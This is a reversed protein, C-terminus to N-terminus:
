HKSTDEHPYADAHRTTRETFRGSAIVHTQSRFGRWCWVTKKKRGGWGQKRPGTNPQKHSEGRPSSSAAPSQRRSCFGSITRSHPLRPASESRQKRGRKRGGGPGLGLATIAPPSACMPPLMHRPFPPPPPVLFFNSPLFFSSSPVRGNNLQVSDLGMGVGCLAGSIQEHACMCMCMCTRLCVCICSCVPAHVRAFMRVARVCVRFTLPARM